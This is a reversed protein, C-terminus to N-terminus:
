RPVPTTNLLREIISEVMERQNNQGFSRTIVRHALVQVALAKIDDPIVYDRGELLAFAQVARSLAIGGRTSVGVFLETSNRTGDIIDLIYHYLEESIRVQRVENQIELVEQVSLVPALHDIPLGNKHAQLVQLEEQRQPYGISIRMLFRDLQSEPLPYTGEFEIPNETAIVMFPSPLRSTVGDCSVQRESMAELMASQTRPTTRNIEDALLINSFVPGPIFEFEQKKPNYINGGTIDAPILDPTFQIRKFDASISRAIARGLLTKGVGPIDELLLHEGAFLTVLCYRIVERKGLVVSGINDELRKITEQIQNSAM